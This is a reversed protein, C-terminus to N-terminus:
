GSAVRYSDRIEREFFKGKSEAAMFDEYVDAPVPYYQYIEGPRFEIELTRETADYGVAYISSSRVRTRKM